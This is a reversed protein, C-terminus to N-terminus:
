DSSEVRNLLWEAFALDGATTIKIADHHGPIVYVPVGSEELLAADDTILQGNYGQHARELTRRDFGQPTQAARLFNRNVTTVVHDTHDVQKITDTIPLSPVVAPHGQHVARAVDTVLQAPALCRAADHILIVRVHEPLAAVGLGVSDHRESGGAVVVPRTAEAIAEWWSRVDQVQSGPVVIVVHGVSGSSMVRDVAHHILSKGGLTVFAKPVKAGLRTGQGAAVIVCGVANTPTM